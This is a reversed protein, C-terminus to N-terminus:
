HARGIPQIQLGSAHVADWHAQTMESSIVKEGTDFEFGVIETEGGDIGTEGEDGINEKAMVGTVKM